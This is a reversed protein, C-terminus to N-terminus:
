SASYYFDDGPLKGGVSKPDQEYLVNLYGSLQNKLEEDVIFVINSGPIAQEAIPAAVIGYKEILVAADAPNETVFQVSAKYEDLFAKVADPHKEAFDRRVVVVGTILSSEGNAVANWEKTWDLAVRLGDVKSLANTVFPQPLIAIANEEQMLLPLVEAAESKYEITIGNAPNIDNKSLVYNLSFEPVAGKGVSYIKKERLDEVSQISDGKELVYMVGLTNIAAVQYAGNTNNYIVSALNAPLAAADIEGKALMPVTEDTTGISFTYQNVSNGAEGNSILQVMGMTTAGKLAAVHMEVPPTEITSNSSATSTSASSAAASGAPATFSSSSTVCASLLGACIAIVLFLSFAKKM